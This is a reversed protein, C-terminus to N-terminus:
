RTGTHRRKGEDKDPTRTGAHQCITTEAGSVRQRPVMANWNSKNLKVCHIAIIVPMAHMHDAHMTASQKKANGSSREAQRSYTSNRENAFKKCPNYQVKSPAPIKWSRLWSPVSPHLTKAKMPMQDADEEKMQDAHTEAYTVKKRVCCIRRAGRCLRAVGSTVM